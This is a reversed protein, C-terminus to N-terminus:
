TLDPRHEAAMPSGSDGAEIEGSAIWVMNMADRRLSQPMGIWRNEIVYRHERYVKDFYSWREEVEASYEVRPIEESEQESSM